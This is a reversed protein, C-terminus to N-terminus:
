RSETAGASSDRRPAVATRRATIGQRSAMGSIAANRTGLEVISTNSGGQTSADIAATHITAAAQCGRGILVPRGRDRGIEQSNTM